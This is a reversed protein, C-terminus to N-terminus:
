VCSSNDHSVKWERERTILENGNIKNKIM